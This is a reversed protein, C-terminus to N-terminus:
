CFGFACPARAHATVAGRATAQSPEAWSRPSIAAKLKSLFGDGGSVHLENSRM